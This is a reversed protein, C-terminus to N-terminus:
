IKNLNAFEGHYKLAANNYAAAAEEETKYYGLHKNRNNGGFSIFAVWKSTKKYFSVGLFRSKSGTQSKRNSNNQSVTALRLNSKQNNLGNKDIHDVVYSSEPNMIYRHMSMSTKTGDEKKINTFAYSYNGMIRCNWKFANVKEFDEDDIIAVKDRTLKIEKM